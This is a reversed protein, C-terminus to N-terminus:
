RPFRSSVPCEFKTALTKANIEPERACVSPDLRGPALAGNRILEAMELFLPTLEARIADVVQAPKQGDGAEYGNECMETEFSKRASWREELMRTLGALLGTRDEGVTCHFYLTRGPTSYAQDILSLAQVVQTCTEQFSGLQRWRFPISYIRRPNLGARQLSRM